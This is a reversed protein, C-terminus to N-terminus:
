RRVKEYAQTRETCTGNVTFCGISPRAGCGPCAITLPRSARLRELHVGPTKEACEEPPKAGCEPCEIELARDIIAGVAAWGAETLSVTAEKDSM